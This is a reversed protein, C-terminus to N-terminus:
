TGQQSEYFSDLVTRALGMDRVKAVLQANEKAVLCNRTAIDRHVIQLGAIYELGCALGQLLRIKTKEDLRSDKKKLLEDLSGETCLEM